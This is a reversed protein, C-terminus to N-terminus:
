RFWHQIITLQVRLFLSRDFQIRFEFMKMWSFAKSFTTQFIDAMRDQGWHHKYTVLAASLWNGHLILNSVWWVYGKDRVWWHAILCRNHATSYFTIKPYWHCGIKIDFRSMNKHLRLTVQPVQFLCPLLLSQGEFTRWHFVLYKRALFIGGVLNCRTHIIMRILSLEVSSVVVSM